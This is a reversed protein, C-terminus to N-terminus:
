RHSDRLMEGFVEAYRAHMRQETFVELLRERGADGMRRRLASDRLLTLLNDGLAAHDQRPSLLGTEGAAVVEGNGGVDTAAIPVASGMAELLTVSIAESLSSLVFVDAAAMLAPVDNRVGLFRVRNAIGLENALSETDARREGDGAYALVARSEDNAILAFARLSTEHNKVPHFRAVQLILLDDESLGLAARTRRRLEITEGQPAFKTPDIGNLIVEIRDAPIGENDVLAQKSFGGCATVRDRPRLLLKNAVVRKTSRHDPYHRGHETFLIKPGSGFVGRIVGRATASYFFPTYQHAHLLDINHERVAQRIRRSVAWDVGPQRKLDIVAFGEDRLEEGLPGVEDLCLFIFTFEDRLRRALDAALVEAGALYLRHLVQGIVPKSVIMEDVVRRDPM